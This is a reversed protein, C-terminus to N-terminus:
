PRDCIPVVTYREILTRANGYNASFGVAWVDGGGCPTTGPVVGVGALVIGGEPPAPSAVQQWSSGTWRDTITLAGVGGVAWVYNNWVPAVGGLIGSSPPYPPAAVQRWTAGDWHVTLPSLSAGNQYFGVAWANTASTTTVSNLTPSAGPTPALIRRWGLSQDYHLITAGGDAAPTGVAWVDNDSQAWVSNLQVGALPPPSQAIWVTGNWYFVLPLYGGQPNTRYGVAWAENISLATVSTLTNGWGQPDPPAAAQTWRTGNWRVILASPRCGTTQKSCGIYTDGVAFAAQPTLAKVGYLENTYASPNPSAEQNWASGNWRLIMTDSGNGTEVFGVSWVHTADAASVSTLFNFGTSPNPSSVITWSDPGAVVQQVTLASLALLVVALLTAAFRLANRHNM